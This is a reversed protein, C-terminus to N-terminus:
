LMPPMRSPDVPRRWPWRRRTATWLRTMTERPGTRAGSGGSGRLRRLAAEYRRRAVSHRAEHEAERAAAVLESVGAPPIIEHTVPGRM